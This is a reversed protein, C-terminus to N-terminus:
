RRILGRGRLQAPSWSFGYRQMDKRPVCNVAAGFIPASATRTLLEALRQASVDRTHGIRVVIIIGDVLRLLALADSVELPPPADILVYDHEEALARMLSEMAESGLLAPPNPAAGGSLLVSISGVGETQVATSIGGDSSAAEAAPGSGSTKVIQMATGSAVRGTLVDALGNPSDVDLLRALTPRRFDAEVVAVREGSEAQVRALNAVLTSRGDGADGSLCLLVRSGGQAKGGLVDGLRLATNLRRLPEVLAKAPGRGGGPRVVPSGVKPLAALVQTNFIQEVEGLTRIRRDFRSLAYAGIAALVLGLVFGFIANKKPKPSVPVPSAKAPTVQQVGTFGSLAAELQSVKAALTAAQIETSTSTGTTGKAGKSKPTTEIRRLQERTNTIQTKVGRLYNARQRAVYAQAYADALRVAGKPTRAETAIVIFDSSGSATAKAKGKAAAFNHQERLRKHVGLGVVSSNIIEVQDSLARGSLTTKGGGSSPVGTQESSGSGLYLQTRATYVAPQRKYYLYTGAGVLIAVALILWKRKWLPAAISAADTTADNM